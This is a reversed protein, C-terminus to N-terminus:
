QNDVFVIIDNLQSAIESFEQNLDLTRFFIRNGDTMKMQGDPVVAEQTKAYLLMGDVNGSHHKDFETVRQSLSNTAGLRM